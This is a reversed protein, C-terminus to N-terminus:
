KVIIDEGAIEESLFDLLLRPTKAVTEKQEKTLRKIRYELRLATSRDSVEWVAEMAVGRHTRTYKSKYTGERHERLRRAVDTTIGTYLSGGECRLLYVYYSSM